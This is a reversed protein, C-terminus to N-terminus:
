FRRTPVFPPRPTEEGFLSRIINAGRGLPIAAHANARILPMFGDRYLYTALHDLVNLMDALRPYCALDNREFDEALMNSMSTTIVAHDGTRTKYLIKRGFYTDAGHPKASDPRLVVNRNTYRSTPAIVSGNNLKKRPGGQECFDIREFHEVFEGSKELGFVAIDFGGVKKCFDNIRQLETRIYPTLWAPHGFLALPGDLVFVNDRLYELDTENAFCRLINMLTIVELVHRVEGHAEGNSSIESFRESFRLADTEYLSEQRPCSCQYSNTGKSLLNDCGDVPCGISKHSHKGQEIARITELLTEGNLDIKAKFAEYATERFFRKPTDNPRNARVINAGPLVKDFTEAREMELFVRPPPIDGPEIDIIKRVDLSVVSVKMLSAEAIPFGNRVAETVTSGDVAVVRRPRWNNRKVDILPPPEVQRPETLVVGEFERVAESNQLSLLSEGTAYESMFPM